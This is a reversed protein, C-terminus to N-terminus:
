HMRSRNYTLSALIYLLITWGVMWAWAQLTQISQHSISLMLWQYSILAERAYGWLGTSPISFTSFLLLLNLVIFVNRGTAPNILNAVFIALLAIPFLGIISVFFVWAYTTFQFGFSFDFAAIILVLLVSFIAVVVMSLIRASFLTLPKVPLTLTYRHWLSVREETLTIGFSMLGVSQAAYNAYVALTALQYHVNQAHSFTDKAFLVFLISPFLITFFVAARNRISEKLFALTYQFTLKM